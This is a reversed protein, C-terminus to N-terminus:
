KVDYYMTCNIKDSSQLSNLITACWSKRSFHLIEQKSQLYLLSFVHMIHEQTLFVGFVTKVVHSAVYKNKLIQYLQTM